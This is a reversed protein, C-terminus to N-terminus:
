SKGQSWKLEDELQKKIRNRTHRSMKDSIDRFLFDMIAKDKEGYKRIFGMYVIVGFIAMGIPIAFRGRKQEKETLMFSHNVKFAHAQSNLFPKPKDKGTSYSATKTRRTAVYKTAYNVTNNRWSKTCSRAVFSAM